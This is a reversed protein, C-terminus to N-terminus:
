GRQCEFKSDLTVVVYRQPTLVICDHIIPMTDPVIKIPMQGANGGHYKERRGAITPRAASIQFDVAALNVEPM